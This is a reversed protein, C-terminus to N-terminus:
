QAETTFFDSKMGGANRAAKRRQNRSRRAPHKQEFDPFRGCGPKRREAGWDELGAQRSRVRVSITSRLTASPLKDFLREDAPLEGDKRRPVKADKRQFPNKRGGRGRESDTKSSRLDSNWSRMGDTPGLAALGCPRDFCPAKRKRRTSRNLIRFDGADRCKGNRARIRRGQRGHRGHAFDSPSQRVSRLRLSSLRLSSLRLSHLWLSGWVCFVLGPSGACCLQLVQRL